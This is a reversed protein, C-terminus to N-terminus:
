AQREPSKRARTCGDGSPQKPTQLFFYQFVVAESQRDDQRRRDDRALTISQQSAVFGCADRAVGKSEYPWTEDAHCQAEGGAPQCEFPQRPPVLVPRQCRNPEQQKDAAAM